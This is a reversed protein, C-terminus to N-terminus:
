INKLLKYFYLINKKDDLANIIENKMESYSIEDKFVFLEYIDVSLAKAIATLTEASPYSNGNEIRSVNKPDIGIEEALNEQTIKKSKRLFQIRKGLNKKLMAKRKRKLNCIIYQM